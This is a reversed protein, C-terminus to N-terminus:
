KEIVSYRTLTATLESAAAPAPVRDKLIEEHKVEKGYLKKLFRREFRPLFVARVGQTTPDM